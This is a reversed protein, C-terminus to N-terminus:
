IVSFFSAYLERCQVNYMLGIPKPVSNLDHFLNIEFFNRINSFLLNDRFALKSKWIHPLYPIVTIYTPECQQGTSSYDPRNM